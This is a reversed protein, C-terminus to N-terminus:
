KLTLPGRLTDTERATGPVPNANPSTDCKGDKLRPLTGSFTLTIAGYGPPGPTPGPAGRRTSAARGDACRDGRRLHGPRPRGAQGGASHDGRTGLVAVARAAALATAPMRGLQLLVSRSVTAPTLKRLHPVDDDTGAVDETLLSALLSNLLLPNGGTTERCAEQFAASPRTGLRDRVLAACAATGLAAPRLATVGPEAALAATLEREAAADSRPERVTLALLLPLGELRRALYAVFRQSPLDAWHLDDVAVLLPTRRAIDATLWYLGHLVSFSDEEAGSAGHALAPAALAAADGPQPLGGAARLEPEFLQRVVGWAYGDEYQVARATLVTMGAEAARERACTLLDTKGIGAPGVLLTMGAGSRASEVAAAM